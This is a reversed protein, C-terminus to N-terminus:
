RMPTAATSFRSPVPGQLGTVLIELSEEGRGPEPRPTKGRVSPMADELCAAALYGLLWLLWSQTESFGM